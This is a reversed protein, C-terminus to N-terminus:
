YDVKSDQDTWQQLRGFNYLTACLFTTLHTWRMAALM